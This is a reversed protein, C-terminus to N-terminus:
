PKLPIRIHSEKNERRGALALPRRRAKTLLLARGDPRLVRAVERLLRPYLKACARRTLEREGWPLDTHNKNSQCRRRTLLPPSLTQLQTHAARPSPWNAFGARV